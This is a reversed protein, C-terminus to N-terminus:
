AGRHKEWLEQLLACILLPVGGTWNAIEKRASEDLTCGADLLPQLFPGWDSDDLITVRIPTDYFVRM